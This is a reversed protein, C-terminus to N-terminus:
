SAITWTKDGVQVHEVKWTERKERSFGDSSFTTWSGPAAVRFGSNTVEGWEAGEGRGLRAWGKSRSLGAYRAPLEVSSKRALRVAGALRAILADSAGAEAAIVLSEVRAASADPAIRAIRAATTEAVTEIATNETTM